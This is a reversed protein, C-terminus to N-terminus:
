PLTAGPCARDRLVPQRDLLRDRNRLANRRPEPVRVLAAEHMSVDLGCVDQERVADREDGVEADRPGRGGDHVRRRLGSRDRRLDRARVHNEARRLVHRGLLRKTLRSGIRTDVDVREPTHEEFHEGTMWRIHGDVIGAMSIRCAISGIGDSCATRASTGAATAAMASRASAFDGASRNSLACSNERASAVASAVPSAPTARAPLPSTRM